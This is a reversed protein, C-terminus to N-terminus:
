CRPAANMLPNKKMTWGVTTVACKFWTEPRYNVTIEAGAKVDKIMKVVVGVDLCTTTYPGLGVRCTAFRKLTTRTRPANSCLAGLSCGDPTCYVVAVSNLCSDMFCDGVWMCPDYEAINAFEVGNTICEEIQGIEEPWVADDRIAVDEEAKHEVYAHRCARLKELRGERRPNQTAEQAKPGEVFARSLDPNRETNARVETSLAAKSVSSCVVTRPAKKFRQESM